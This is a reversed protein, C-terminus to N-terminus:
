ILLYKSPIRGKLFQELGAVQRDGTFFQDVSGRQLFDGDGVRFFFMGDIVDKLASNIGGVADGMHGDVNGVLLAVSNLFRSHEADGTFHAVETQFAKDVIHFLANHFASDVKVTQLGTCVGDGVGCSETVTIFHLEAVEGVFFLRRFGRPYGRPKEAAYTETHVFRV